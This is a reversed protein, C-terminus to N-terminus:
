FIAQRMDKGPFKPFYNLVPGISWIKAVALIQIVLNTPLKDCIPILM